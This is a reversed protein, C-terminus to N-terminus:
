RVVLVPCPASQLVKNAVSGLLVKEMGRYGHTGMVILSDGNIRACDVIEKAPNGKRVDTSCSLSSPLKELVLKRLRAAASKDMELEMVDFSINPVSVWAYPTMEEVVYVLRLEAGFKQALNSAADLVKDTLESFDVATLIKQKAEM